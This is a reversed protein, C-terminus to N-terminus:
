YDEIKAPFVVHKCCYQGVQLLNAQQELMGLRHPFFIKQTHAALLLAFLGTALIEVLPPSLSDCSPSSTTALASPAFGRGVLPCPSRRLSGWRPSPRVGLRWLMKSCKLDFSAQKPLVNLHSNM